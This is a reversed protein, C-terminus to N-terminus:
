APCSSRPVTTKVSVLSFFTRPTKTLTYPRAYAYQVSYQLMSWLGVRSEFPLKLLEPPCWTENTPIDILNSQVILLILQRDIPISNSKKSERKKEFTILYAFLVIQIFSCIKNASSICTIIKVSVSNLIKYM